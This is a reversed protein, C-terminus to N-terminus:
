DDVIMGRVACTLQGVFEALSMRGDMDEMTGAFLSEAADLIRERTPSTASQRNGSQPSM